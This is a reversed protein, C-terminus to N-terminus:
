FRSVPFEKEKGDNERASKYTIRRKPCMFGYHNLLFILIYVTVIHLAHVIDEFMTAVCM